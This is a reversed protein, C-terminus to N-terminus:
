PAVGASPCPLVHYSAPIFIPFIITVLDSFASPMWHTFTHRKKLGTSSGQLVEGDTVAAAPVGL